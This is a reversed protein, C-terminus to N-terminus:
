LILMGPNTEDGIWEDTEPVTFPISGRRVAVPEITLEMIMSFSWNVAGIIAITLATYRLCKSGM